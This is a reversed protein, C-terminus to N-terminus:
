NIKGNIGRPFLDYENRSHDRVWEYQWGEKFKDVIPQPGEIPVANSRSVVWDALAETVGIKILYKFLARLMPQVEPRMYYKMNPNDKTLKVKDTSFSWDKSRDELIKFLVAVNADFGDTTSYAFVVKCRICVVTAALKIPKLAWKDYSENRVDLRVTQSTKCSLCVIRTGDQVWIM